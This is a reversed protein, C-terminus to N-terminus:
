WGKRAPATNDSHRGPRSFLNWFLTMIYVYSSSMNDCLRTNTVAGLGSPKPKLSHRGM